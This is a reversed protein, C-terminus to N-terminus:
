SVLKEAPNNEYLCSFNISEYIVYHLRHYIEIKPCCIYGTNEYM